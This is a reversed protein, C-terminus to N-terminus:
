NLKRFSSFKQLKEQVEGRAVGRIFMQGWVELMMLKMSLRQDANEFLYDAEKSGLHFHSTVFDGSFFQKDVQIRQIASIEFGRKKRQSLEKPLYRDAVKRLVWKDRLFPHLLGTTPRQALTSSQGGSLRRNM